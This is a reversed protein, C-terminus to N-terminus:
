REKVAIPNYPFPRNAAKIQSVDTITFSVNEPASLLARNTDRTKAVFLGGQITGSVGSSWRLVGQGIVLILGNWTLNGVIHVEGRVLLLGYGTGPGLDLNGDVVVVRYDGPGGSASMASGAYIDTANRTISSALNEL